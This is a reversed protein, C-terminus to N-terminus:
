VIKNNKDLMGVIERAQKLGTQIGAYYNDNGSFIKAEIKANKIKREILAMVEDKTM